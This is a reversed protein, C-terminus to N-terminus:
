SCYFYLSHTYSNVSMSIKLTFCLRMGTKAEITAVKKFKEIAENYRNLKLLSKAYLLEGLHPFPSSKDATYFDSAIMCDEYLGDNFLNSLHPVCDQIKNSTQM